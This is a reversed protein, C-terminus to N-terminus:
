LSNEEVHTYLVYTYLVHSYKHTAVRVRDRVINILSEIVAETRGKHLGKGTAATIIDETATGTRNPDSIILRDMVLRDMLNIGLVTDKAPMPNPTIVGAEEEMRLIGEDGKIRHLIIIIIRGIILDTNRDPTARSPNGCGRSLM